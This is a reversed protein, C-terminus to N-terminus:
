EVTNVLVGIPPIRIVVDDGSQLTFDDPPIVGTGTLLVCGNPFSMERYLFEVLEEPTRRMQSMATGGEFVAVASRSIRMEIPTDLAIPTDSVLLCPGIACSGDYCKAQPLYLPNEGEIDRSSMDNGITYGVIQGRANICLALEPEPVSWSADRRVRVLAGTGRVRWGATKFFLEPRRASYVRDYFTGGGAAQSEDIRASRSRLYTVGAAWVEQSDIPALLYEDIRAGGNGISVAALYAHLNDHNVLADWADLLPWFREDKEVVAGRATRYLKFSTM